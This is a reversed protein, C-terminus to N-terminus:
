KDTACDYYYTEAAHYRLGGLIKVSDNLIGDYLKFGAYYFGGGANRYFSFLSAEITMNARLRM